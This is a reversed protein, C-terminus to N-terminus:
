KRTVTILQGGKPNAVVSRKQDPWIVELSVPEQRGLGFHVRTADGSLYGSTATIKRWQQGQGKLLVQAGIANLNQTGEWRLEVQLSKGCNRNEFVQSASSLNGVVIDLDGDNDLDAMSMGRGSRQSNLGWDVKRVFGRGARNYFLQNAELLEGNPLYHFLEADIMGNVVYLEEFGDNDLDGFKASWSWGTAEVGLQYAQSSYGKAGRMYLMNEPRQPSNRVLRNFGKQMLPIWSALTKLDRFDPKMDTAFLEPSGDNNVDSSSFGMTHQTYQPFNPQRAWRSQDWIMDPLDFDNGVILEATGDNNTDFTTIGM